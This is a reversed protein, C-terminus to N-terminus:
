IVQQWLEKTENITGIKKFIALGLVEEKMRRLDKKDKDAMVIEQFLEHSKKKNKGESTKFKERYRDEDVIIVKLNGKFIKIEGRVKSEGKPTVLRKRTKRYRIAPPSSIAEEVQRRKDLEELQDM